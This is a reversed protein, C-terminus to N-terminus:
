RRPPVFRMAPETPCVAFGLAEKVTNMTDLEALNEMKLVEVPCGRVCAPAEGQDMLDYCGDCKEAKGTRPNMKPAEYPCAEVCNGCGICESHNQVVLGDKERKSYAGAPCVEMCVPTKCHNCAHSLYRAVLRGNVETEYEDVVRWSVGPEVNRAVKCAMACATCGVCYNQNYYFAKQIGM